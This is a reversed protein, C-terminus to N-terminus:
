GRNRQRVLEFLADQIIGPSNLWTVVAVRRATTVPESGPRLGFAHCGKVPFRTKVAVGAEDHAPGHAM